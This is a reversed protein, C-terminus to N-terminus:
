ACYDISHPDDDNPVAQPTADDNPETEPEEHHEKPTKPQHKREQRRQTPAVGQITQLSEVPKIVSYDSDAM